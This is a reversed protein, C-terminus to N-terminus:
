KTALGRLSQGLEEVPAPCPTISHLIQQKRREVNMVAVRPDDDSTPGCALWTPETGSGLSGYVQLRYTRRGDPDQLAILRHSPGAAHLVVTIKAPADVYGADRNPIAVAHFGAAREADTLDSPYLEYDSV